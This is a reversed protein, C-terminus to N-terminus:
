DTSSSENENGEIDNKDGDLALALGKYDNIATEITAIAVNSPLFYGRNEGEFLLIDGEKLFIKLKSESEYQSNKFTSHTVLELNELKQKVKENEFELKTDKDVKIGEYPTLDPRIVYYNM